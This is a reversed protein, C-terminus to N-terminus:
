AACIAKAALQLRALVDSIGLQQAELFLNKAIKEKEKKRFAKAANSNGYSATKKHDATIMRVCPGSYASLPSVSNSPMHHRQGDYAKMTGYKGGAFNYRVTSGSFAKSYKGDRATGTVTITEQVTEGKKLKWTWSTSGVKVNTFTHQKSAYLGGSNKKVTCKIKVSDVRDVGFNYVTIKYSTSQPTISMFVYNPMSIAKGYPANLSRVNTGMINITCEKGEAEQYKGYNKDLGNRAYADIYGISLISITLVISLVKKFLKKVKEGKENFQINDKAKKFYYLSKYIIKISCNDIIQVISQM